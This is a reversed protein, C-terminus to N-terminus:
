PRFQRFAEASCGRLIGLRGFFAMGLIPLRRRLQCGEPGRASGVVISVRVKRYWRGIAPPGKGIIAPIHTAGRASHGNLALDHLGRGPPFPVSFHHFTAPPPRCSAVCWLFCSRRHSPHAGIPPSLYGERYSIHSACRGSKPLLIDGAGHLGH